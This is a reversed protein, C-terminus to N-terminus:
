DWWEDRWQEYDDSNVCNLFTLKGRWEDTNINVVSSRIRRLATGVELTKPRTILKLQVANSKLQVLRVTRTIRNRHRFRKKIAILKDPKKGDFTIDNNTLKNKGIIHENWTVVETVLSLRSRRHGDRFTFSVSIIL